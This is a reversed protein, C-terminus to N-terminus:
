TISAQIANVAFPKATRITADVEAVSALSHICVIVGVNENNEFRRNVHLQEFAKRIQVARVATWRSNGVGNVASWPGACAQVIVSM